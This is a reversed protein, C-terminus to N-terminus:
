FCCCHHNKAHTNKYSQKWEAITYNDNMGLNCNKCIPHLNKIDLTGGKSHPIDHGCHFDFVTIENKCWDITCKAKYKEGIKTLWTQERIAKPISRSM